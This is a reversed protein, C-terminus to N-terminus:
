LYLSSVTKQGNQPLVKKFERRKDYKHISEEIDKRAKNLEKEIQRQVIPLIRIM